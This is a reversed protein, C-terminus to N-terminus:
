EGSGVVGPASLGRWSYWVDRAYPYAKQLLLHLRNREVAFEAWGAASDIMNREVWEDRLGSESRHALGAATCVPSSLMCEGGTTLAFPQSTAEYSSDIRLPTAWTDGARFSFYTHRDAEEWVALPSDQSDLAIRPNTPTGNGGLPLYSSTWGTDSQEFYWVHGAACVVCARGQRDTKVDPETAQLDSVEAPTGWGVSDYVAYWIRSSDSTWVVHVSGFRDGCARIEGGTQNWGTCRVPITWTDSSKRAMYCPRRSRGVGLRRMAPRGAWYSGSLVRLPFSDRSVHVPTTWTDVNAPKCSYEIWDSLDSMRHSWSAHLTGASDITLSPYSALVWDDAALRETAVSWEGVAIGVAALVLVVTARIRIM